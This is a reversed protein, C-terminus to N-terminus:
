AAPNRAPPVRVARPRVVVPTGTALSTETGVLIETALSTETGVPTGTALSTETGVPTGTGVPASRRISRLPEREARGPEDTTAT